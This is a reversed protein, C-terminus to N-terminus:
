DQGPGRHAAVVQTAVELATRGDSRSMRELWEEAEDLSLGRSGMLLGLATDIVMRSRLRTPALEARRRADFALDHDAVSAGRVAGLARELAAVRGAFADTHRSYVTVVSILRTPTAMAVALSSRMVPHVVHRSGDGHRAVYALTLDEDAFWIAVAGAEPVADAAAESLWAMRAGVDEDGSAGLLELAQATAPLPDM